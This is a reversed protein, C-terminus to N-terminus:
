RKVREPITFSSLHLIKYSKMWQFTRFVLPPSVSLQLCVAINNKTGSLSNNSLTSPQSQEIQNFPGRAMHHPPRPSRKQKKWKSSESMGSARMKLQLFCLPENLSTEGFVQVSDLETKSVAEFHPLLMQVFRELVM